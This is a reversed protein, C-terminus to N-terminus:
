NANEQAMQQMIKRHREKREKEEKEKDEDDSDFLSQMDKRPKAGGLVQAEDDEKPKVEFDDKKVVSKKAQKQNVKKDLSMLEKFLNNSYKNDSNGERADKLEQDMAAKKQEVINKRHAILRKKREELSEKGEEEEKKEEGNNMKSLKEKLMEAMTKAQGEEKKNWPEFDIDDAYPDYTSKKKNKGFIDNSAERLIDYDAAMAGANKQMSVPPLDYTAERPKNPDPLPEERKPKKPEKIVKKKPKKAVVPAAVIEPTEPTFVEPKKTAMEKEKKIRDLEEQKKKKELFEKERKIREEEAKLKAEKKKLEEEKQKMIDEKHQLDEDKKKTEEEHEKSSLAMVEKLIREEEEQIKKRDEEERMSMQRIIEMQEEEFQDVKPEEKATNQELNKKVIDETSVPKVPDAPGPMKEEGPTPTPKSADMASNLDNNEQQQLVKFAAENM